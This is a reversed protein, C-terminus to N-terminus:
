DACCKAPRLGRIWPKAKASSRPLLSAVQLMNLTSPDISPPCGVVKLTGKLAYMMTRSPEDGYENQPVTAFGM